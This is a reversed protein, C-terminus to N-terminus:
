FNPKVVIAGLPELVQQLRAFMKEDEYTGVIAGGSGPFKASAGTSRATEIM